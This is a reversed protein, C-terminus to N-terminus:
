YFCFICISRKLSTKNFSVKKLCSSFQAWRALMMWLEEGALSRFNEKSNIELRHDLLFLLVHFSLLHQRCRQFCVSRWKQKWDMTDFALNHRQLTIYFSAAVNFAANTQQWKLCKFVTFNWRMVAPLAGAVESRQWPLLKRWLWTTQRGM